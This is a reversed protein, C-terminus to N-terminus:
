SSTTPNFQKAIEPLGLKELTTKTPVGNPDWGRKRYYNQLLMRYKTPDLKSGKLPGENLPENFWRPPPLDMESSWAGDLERIWFARVLNFVREASASLMDWNFEIGTALSLYKTYRDPELGLNVVPFRCVGLLEFAGRINQTQILHDVKEESYGFRDHGTEWGIVWADKHHAGIPSTGYALAM